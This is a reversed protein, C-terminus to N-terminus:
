KKEKFKMVTLVGKMKPHTRYIRGEPYDEPVFGEEEWFTKIRQELEEDELPLAIQLLVGKM